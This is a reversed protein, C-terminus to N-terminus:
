RMGNFHIAQREGLLREYDADDRGAYRQQQEHCSYGPLTRWSGRRDYHTEDNRRCRNGQACISSRGDFVAEDASAGWHHRNRECHYVVQAEAVPSQKTWLSEGTSHSNRNVRPYPCRRMYILLLDTLYSALVSASIQRFVSGMVGNIVTYAQARGQSEASATRQRSLKFRLSQPFSHPKESQKQQIPRGQVLFRLPSGGSFWPQV